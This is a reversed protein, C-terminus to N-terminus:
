RKTETYRHLFGRTYSYDDEHHMQGDWKCKGPWHFDCVRQIAAIAEDHSFVGLCIRIMGGHRRLEEVPIVLWAEYLDDRAGSLEPENGTIATADLIM